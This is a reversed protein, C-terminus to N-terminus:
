WAPKNMRGVVEEDREYTGFVGVEQFEHASHALLGAAIFTLLVTSAVMFGKVSTMNGAKYLVLGVAFGTFLGVIGPIPISKAPYGAGVGALFIVTEVGERLVSVFPIWFMTSRRLSSGEAEAKVLNASLKAEWMAQFKSIKLMSMALVTIIISAFLMLFGEFLQEQKDVFFNEDVAYFAIILGIGGLIAIVLGALAGLWVDRRLHRKDVKDLFKLLVAIIVCAEVAERFCVFFAPVSFYETGQVQQVRALAFCIYRHV